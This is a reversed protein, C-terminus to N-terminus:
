GVQVEVYTALALSDTNIGPAKPKRLLGALSNM